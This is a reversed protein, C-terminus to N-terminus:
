QSFFRLEGTGLNLRTETFVQQLAPIANRERDRADLNEWPHAQSGYVDGASNFAYMMPVRSIYTAYERLTFNEKVAEELFGARDQDTETWIIHRESLNGTASGRSFPSNSFLASLAPALLFGARLLEMAHKETNYDLNIQLGVTLRMMERGRGGVKNFHADM